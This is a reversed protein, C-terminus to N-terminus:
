APRQRSLWLVPSRRVDQSYSLNWHYTIFRRIKPWFTAVQGSSLDFVAVASSYNEKSALWAM